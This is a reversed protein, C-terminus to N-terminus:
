DYYDWVNQDLWEEYKTDFNEPLDANMLQEWFEKNRYKIILREGLDEDEHPPPKWYHYKNYELHVKRLDETSTIPEVRAQNEKSKELL